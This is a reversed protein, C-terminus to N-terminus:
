ISVMVGKVIKVLEDVRKDLDLRGAYVLLIKNPDNVDDNFMLKKRLKPVKRPYFIETKM